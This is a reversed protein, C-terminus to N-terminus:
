LQARLREVHVALMPVCVPCETIRQEDANLGWCLAEAVSYSYFHSLDIEETGDRQSKKSGAPTHRARFRSSCKSTYVSCEPSGTVDKEM